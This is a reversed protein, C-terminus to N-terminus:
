NFTIIVTCRVQKIGSESGHLVSRVSSKAQGQNLPMKTHSSKDTDKSSPFRNYNSQQNPMNGVTSVVSPQQVREVSKPKSKNTGSLNDLLQSQNFTLSESANFNVSPDRGTPQSFATGSNLNRGSSYALNQLNKTLSPLTQIMGPFVSTIGATKNDTKSTATKFAQTQSNHFTSPVQMTEPWNVQQPLHNASTPPANFSQLKSFNESM